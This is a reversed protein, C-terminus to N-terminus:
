VDLLRIRLRVTDGVDCGQATRVAKKIPLVYTSAGPFLSTRWTSDGLRVEVRVSGFGRTVPEAVEAIEDAVAEPVSVFTWRETRRADWLWLQAEFEVDM